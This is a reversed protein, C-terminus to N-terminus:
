QSAHATAYYIEVGILQGADGGEMARAIIQDGEANPKVLTGDTHAVLDNGASVTEGLLAKGGGGQMAVEVVEEAATTTNQAIGVCRDTNAAGLAVHKKDTGMKVAKGKATAADSLFAYIRPESHSSM